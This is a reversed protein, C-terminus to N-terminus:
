TEQEDPAIQRNQKQELVAAHETGQIGVLEEAGVVEVEQVPVGEGEAGKEGEDDKVGIWGGTSIKSNSDAQTLM